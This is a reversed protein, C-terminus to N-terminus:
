VYKAARNEISGEWYWRWIEIMGVGARRALWAYQRQVKLWTQYMQDANKQVESTRSYIPTIVCRCHDHVKAALEGSLVEPPMRNEKFQRDSHEFSEVSYVTGRTELMSCFYCADAGQTVRAWGIARRDAVAAARAQDMGSQVVRRAAGAGVEEAVKAPATLLIGQDLDTVGEAKAPRVLGLYRLSSEAQESNFKPAKPVRAQGTVGAARRAQRHSSSALSAGASAGAKVIPLAAAIFASIADPTLFDGVISTYLASVRDATQDATHEMSVKAARAAALEGAM